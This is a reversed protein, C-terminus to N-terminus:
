RYLGQEPPSRWLSYRTQGTQHERAKEWPQPSRVVAVSQVVDLGFDSQSRWRLQEAGRDQGWRRPVSRSGFRRWKGPAV